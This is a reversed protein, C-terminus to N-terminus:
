CSRVAALLCLLGWPRQLSMSLAVQQMNHLHGTCLMLMLEKAIHPVSCLQHLVSALPDASYTKRSQHVALRKHGERASATM